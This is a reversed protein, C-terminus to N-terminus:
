ISQKNAKFMKEHGPIRFDAMDSLKKRCEIM